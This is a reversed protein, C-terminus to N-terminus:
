RLWIVAGLGVAILTMAILLTRLSFRYAVWPAAVFCTVILVLFWYPVFLLFRAPWIRGGFGLPSAPLDKKHSESARWEDVPWQARGWVSNAPQWFGNVNSDDFAIFRLQGVVHSAHFGNNNGLGFVIREYWWYSRIWLVCLLVAMVGWTVSWAIRLKRYKM